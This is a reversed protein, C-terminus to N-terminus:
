MHFAPPNVDISALYVGAESGNLPWTVLCVVTFDVILIIGCPFNVIVNLLFHNVRQFVLNLTNATHHSAADM